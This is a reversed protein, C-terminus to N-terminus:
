ETSSPSTHTLVKDDQFHVEIYKPRGFADQKGTDYYWIERRRTEDTYGRKDPSGMVSTVDGKTMGVMLQGDKRGELMKADYESIQLRSRSIIEKMANREDDTISSASLALQAEDIAKKYMPAARGISSKATGEAQNFCSLAKECKASVKSAGSPMITAPKFFSAIANMKESVRAWPIRIKKRNKKSATKTKDKVASVEKIKEFFVEGQYRFKVGDKTIEIVQAGGISDGRKVVKDNVVALPEKEEIIGSIELQPRALVDDAIISFISLIICVFVLPRITM